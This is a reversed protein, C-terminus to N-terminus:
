NRNYGHDRSRLIRKWHSERENIDTDIPDAIELISFRFDNRREANVYIGFEKKLAVNHGHGTAAYTCWRGWIDGEGDAKGVYLKGTVTDTILYIGKFSSLPARWSESNERVLSALQAMSLDVRRYGPFSAITRREPTLEVVTLDEALTEGYLYTPREKYISEVYLRGAWEDASALRTLDYIYHHHPDVDPVCGNSRFLGAFMWRASTGAQILSVVYPRQFNRQSQWTQWEDFAPFGGELYVDMPHEIKNWRALHVKAEKPTFFPDWIKILDLLLM